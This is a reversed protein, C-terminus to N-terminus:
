CVAKIHKTKFLHIHSPKAFVEIGAALAWQEVLDCQARNWYTLIISCAAWWAALFMFHPIYISTKLIVHAASNDPSMNNLNASLVRDMSDLSWTRQQKQFASDQFDNLRSTEWPFLLLQAIQSQDRELRSIYGMQSWFSANWAILNHKTCQLSKSRTNLGRLCFLNSVRPWIRIYVMTTGSKTWTHYLVM